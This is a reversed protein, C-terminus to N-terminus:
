HSILWGIWLMFWGFLVFLAIGGIWAIISRWPLRRGEDLLAFLLHREWSLGGRARKRAQTLWDEQSTEQPSTEASSSEAAALEGERRTREIIRREEPTLRWYV